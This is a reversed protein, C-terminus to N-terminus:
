TDCAIGDNDRDLESRYGPDGDHIPAAGADRAEDCNAYYIDEEVTEESTTEESTTEEEVPASTLLEESYTSTPIESEPVDSCGSLIILTIFVGSIYKTFM